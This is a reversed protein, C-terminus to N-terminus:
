GVGRVTPDLVVYLIDVLLNILVYGTAVVITFGMIAPFDLFVISDVVYAGMGPWAFITETLIAGALLDGIALGVVTVTPILANKLAHRYIVSRRPIGNARATRVYDQSMVEIMSSRVQRSFVGIHVFSLCTAPLILHTLADGLARFNGAILSDIILFGTHRPPLSIFADIRGSGPLVGLKGYFILLVMLGLWFLPTSVGLVSFGRSLHDVITDKRSASWVGLPIGILLAIFIATLALELTAPFYTKLDNAVPRQTRISTGFDGHVLGNVYMWYQVPVPKDLGLQGRMKELTEKSARQGVIMSAPDGPVVHSVIFTMMTIGVLM